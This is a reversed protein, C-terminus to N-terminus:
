ASDKRSGRQHGGPRPAPGTGREGPAARKPLAAPCLQRSLVRWVAAEMGLVARAGEEGGRRGLAPSCASSRVYRTLMRSGARREGRARGESQGGQGQLSLESFQM